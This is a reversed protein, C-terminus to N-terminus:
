KNPVKPSKDFSEEGAIDSAIAELDITDAEQKSKALEEQLDKIQQTLNVQKQVLAEKRETAFVAPKENVKPNITMYVDKLFQDFYAALLGYDSDTFYQEDVDTFAERYINGLQGDKVIKRVDGICADVGRMKIEEYSFNKIGNIIFVSKLPNKREMLPLDPNEGRYTHWKSTALTSYAM